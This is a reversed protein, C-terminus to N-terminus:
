GLDADFDLGKCAVAVLKLAAGNVGLYGLRTGRAPIRLRAGAACWVEDYGIASSEGPRFWAGDTGTAGIFYVVWYDPPASAEIYGAGNIAVTATRPEYLAANAPQRGLNPTDTTELNGLDLPHQPQQGGRPPAPAAPAPPAAAPQRQYSM